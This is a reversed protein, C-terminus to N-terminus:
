IFFHQCFHLLISLYHFNNLLSLMMPHIPCVSLCSLKTSSIDIFSISSNIKNALDPKKQRDKTNRTHTHLLVDLTPNLDCFFSKHVSLSPKCTICIIQMLAPFLSSSFADSYLRFSSSVASCFCSDYRLARRWLRDRICM